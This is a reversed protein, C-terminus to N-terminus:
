SSFSPHQSNNARLAAFLATIAFAAEGEKDGAEWHWRRRFYETSFRPYDRDRDLKLDQTRWEMYENTWIHPIVQDAEAPPIETAVVPTAEEALHGSQSIESM